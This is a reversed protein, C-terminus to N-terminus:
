EFSWGHDHVAVRFNGGQYSVLHVQLHDIGVRNWSKSLDGLLDLNRFLIKTKPIGRPRKVHPIQNKQESFTGASRRNSEETKSCRM